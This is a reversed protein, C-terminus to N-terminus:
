LEKKDTVASDKCSSSGCSCGKKVVFVRYLYYFAAGIIVGTILYDLFQM